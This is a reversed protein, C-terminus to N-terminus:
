SIEKRFKDRRKYANKRKREGMVLSPQPMPKRIKAYLDAIKMRSLKGHLKRFDLSNEKLRLIKKAFQTSSLAPRTITVDSLAIFREPLGGVRRPNSKCRRLRGM